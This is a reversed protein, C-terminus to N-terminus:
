APSPNVWSFELHAHQWDVQHDHSLRVEVELKTHLVGSIQVTASNVVRRGSLSRTPTWSMARNVMSRNVHVVTRLNNSDPVWLILVSM